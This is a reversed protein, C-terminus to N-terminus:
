TGRARVGSFMSSVPKPKKRQVIRGERMQETKIEQRDESRRSQLKSVQGKLFCVVQEKFNNNTICM